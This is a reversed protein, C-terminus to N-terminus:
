SLMKTLMYLPKHQIEEIEVNKSLALKNLKDWVDKKKTLVPYRIGFVAKGEKSDIDILGFNVTLQGSVKDKFDINLKRGYVDVGFNDSLFKIFKYSDEPQFHLNKLFNVLQSIANKGEEPLSAHASKGFSEILVKTASERTIKIGKNAHPHKIQEQIIGLDRCSTEIEAKAYDSVINVKDGGTLRILFTERKQKNGKIKKILRFRLIGKEAFVVPFEADPSFGYLPKERNKLYYKIGRAQTEEDTGIIVRARKSVPLGSERIAKLAFISAITSGKDDVAGRGFIKGDHLQADYPPYDWGSGEPVVDVHCLVGIMERGEGIELYGAYGDVNDSKLGLKEGLNLVYDLAKCIGKGFPKDKESTKELVSKIQILEKISSIIEGKKNEVIENLIVELM